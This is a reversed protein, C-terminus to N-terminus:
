GTTDIRPPALYTALAQLTFLFFLHLYYDDTNLGSQNKEFLKTSLRFNFLLTQIQWIQQSSAKIKTKQKANETNNFHM